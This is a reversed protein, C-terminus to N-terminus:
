TLNSTVKDTVKSAARLKAGGPLVQGDAVSVLVTMSMRVSSAADPTIQPETDQGLLM